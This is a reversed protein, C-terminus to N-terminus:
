VKSIFIRFKNRRSYYSRLPTASRQSTAFSHRPTGSPHWKPVGVEGRRPCGVNRHLAVGHRPNGVSRRLFGFIGSKGTEGKQSKRWSDSLIEVCIM